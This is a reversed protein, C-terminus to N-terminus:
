PCRRAPVLRINRYSLRLKRDKDEGSLTATGNFTAPVVGNGERIDARQVPGTLTVLALQRLAPSSGEMFWSSGISGRGELTGEPTLSGGATITWGAPVHCVANFTVGWTSFSFGTIRDSARLPIAEVSLLYTRPHDVPAAAAAAAALPLLLSM